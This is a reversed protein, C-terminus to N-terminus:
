PNAGTKTQASAMRYYSVAIGNRLTTRNFKLTQGKTICNAIVPTLAKLAALEEPKDIDTALVTKAGAADRRIVCEGLQGAYRDAVSATYLEQLQAMTKADRAKGTRPDTAAPEIPMAWDLPKIAGPDITAAGAFDTDLLQEALAGRFLERRMRLEGGRLGLCSWDVLKFYDKDSLQENAPMLVFTRALDPHRKAACGAFDHMVARAMQANRKNQKADAVTGVALMALGALAMTVRGIM